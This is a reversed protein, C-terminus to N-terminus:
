APPPVTAVFSERRNLRDLLAVLRPHGRRWGEGIRLDAYALAVGWDLDAQTLSTLFHDRTALAKEVCGLTQEFIEDAEARVSPDQLHKPRLTELFARVLWDCYGLALGSWYSIELKQSQSYLSSPHAEYFRELILSSEVLSQGNVLHLVPVRGVPSLLHLQQMEATPEAFLDLVTEEYPLSSELFAVRVRRAFPSRASIFLRSNVFPSNM